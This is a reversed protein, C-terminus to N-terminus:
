YKVQASNQRALSRAVITRRRDFEARVGIRSLVTWSPPDSAPFSEELSEDIDQESRAQSGREDRSPQASQTEALM